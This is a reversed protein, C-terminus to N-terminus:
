EALAAAAKFWAEIDEEDAHDTLFNDLSGYAYAYMDIYVKWTDAFPRLAGTLADVKARLSDREALLSKVMDIFDSTSYGEITNYGLALALQETTLLFALYFQRKQHNEGDREREAQEARQNADAVELGKTNVATCAKVREEEIRRNEARLREIEAAQQRIENRQRVVQNGLAEPTLTDGLRLRRPKDMDGAGDDAPPQSAVLASDAVVLLADSVVTLGEDTFQYVADFPDYKFYGEDALTRFEIRMIADRGALGPYFRNATFRETDSMLIENVTTLIERHVDSMKDWTYTIESVANESEPPQCAAAETMSGTEQWELLQEHTCDHYFAAVGLFSMFLTHYKTGDDEKVIATNPSEGPIKCQLMTGIAFREKIEGVDESAKTYAPSVGGDAAHQNLKGTVPTGGAPVSGVRREYDAVV